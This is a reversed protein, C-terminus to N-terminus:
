PRFVPNLPPGYRETLHLKALWRLLLAYQDIGLFRDPGDLTRHIGAVRRADSASSRAKVARQATEM